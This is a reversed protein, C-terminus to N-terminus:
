GRNSYLRVHQVTGVHRVLEATLLMWKTLQTQQLTVSATEMKKENDSNTMVHNM